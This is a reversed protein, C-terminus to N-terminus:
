QAPRDRSVQKDEQDESGSVWDQQRHKNIIDTICLSMRENHTVTDEGSTINVYM